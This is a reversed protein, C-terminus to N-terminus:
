RQTVSDSLPACQCSNNRTDRDTITCRITGPSSQLAVTGRFVAGDVRALVRRDTANHEFTIVSGRRTVAAKGTFVSGNCCFRYDGTVSNGLFVVGSNSDDQLCVDFVQLPVSTTNNNPNPDPNNSSVSVANTLTGLAGGQATILVTYKVTAVQGPALASFTATLLDASVSCSGTPSGNVLTMCSGAVFTTGPPLIDTVLVNSAVAPGLNTVTVEYSATSGVTGTSLVNKTVSLDAACSAAPYVAIGGNFNSGGTATGVRSLSGDAAISFATAGAEFNFAFLCTGSANTVAAHPSTGGTNPFPSGAIETLAGGAAVSMVSMNNTSFHSVFLFREDPSLQINSDFDGSPNFPSGMVQTLAGGAGISFVYVGSSSGVFALTSACNIDIEAPGLGAQVLPGIPVPTGMTLMGNAQNITFPVVNNSINHSVLLFAGNPSVKIDAPFTPFSGGTPVEQVFTLSGDVARSFVNITGGGRSVYLFRGDPTCSINMDGGGPIPVPSGVVSLAGTTPNIAFVTLNESDRNAAYLNNGCVEARNTGVFGAPTGAGGTDFPSGQIPSLSCDAGVSYASVSNDFLNNNVYVFNGQAQTESTHSLLLVLLFVPSIPVRAGVSRLIGLALFKKM